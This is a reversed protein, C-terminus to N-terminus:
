LRSTVPGRRLGFFCVAVWVVKCAPFSEANWDTNGSQGLHRIKHSIQLRHGVNIKGTRRGLKLHCKDSIWVLCHVSVKKLKMANLKSKGEYLSIKCTLYIDNASLVHSIRSLENSNRLYWNLSLPILYLNLELYILIEARWLYNELNSLFYDFNLM